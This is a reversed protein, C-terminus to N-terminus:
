WSYQPLLYRVSLYVCLYVSVCFPMGVWNCIARQALVWVTGKQTDTHAHIQETDGGVTNMPLRYYMYNYLLASAMPWAMGRAQLTLVGM